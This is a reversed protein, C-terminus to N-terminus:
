VNQTADRIRYREPRNDGLGFNTMLDVMEFNERSEGAMGTFIKGLQARIEPDVVKKGQAKRMDEGSKFLAPLEGNYFKQIINMWIDFSMLMYDEYTELGDLGREVLQDALRKSGEMSLYLGTSFVPDVFGAADGILVWNSGYLTQTIAQYNDFEFVPEIREAGSVIDQLRNHKSVVNQLKTAATDGYQDLRNSDMVLGFSTRDPLPIRWSWGYEFLDSHIFGNQTGPLSDYHTFLATDKRHGRRESLGLHNTLLRARGTADVVLDPTSDRDPLRELMEPELRVDDGDVGIGARSEVYDAAAERARNRLCENFRKRPVNYAYDPHPGPIESFPFDVETGDQLEFSAGPKRQSFSQVKDEVGLDRLVGVVGPVLSEGILIPATSEEYFVTVSVGNDALRTALTSSAPGGGLIVVSGPVNSTMMAVM